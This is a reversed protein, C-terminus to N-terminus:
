RRLPLRAEVTSSVSRYAYGLRENVRRMNENGRQTWTTVERIGRAAAWALQRRKLALALGRGRWAPHVVTLGNTAADSRDQWARLGAYAVITGDAIAVFSGDPLTAEKRLWEDLTVTPTWPTAMDRYGQAALDYVERLLEERREGLSIVEVGPPPSPPPPEDEVAYVQEVQRDVEVFGFRRAFAVAGADRPDVESTIHAFGVSECHRALPELLRAGVGRRRADPVVWVVVWGRGHVFFPEAVGAGVVTEDIEALTRIVSSTAAARMEAVSAAPEGPHVVLRVRRWAQLDSHSKVSRVNIM